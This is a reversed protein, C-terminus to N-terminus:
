QHGSRPVKVVEPRTQSSMLRFSGLMRCDTHLRGRPVTPSYVPNRSSCLVNCASPPGDKKVWRQQRPLQVRQLYRSPIGLSDRITATDRAIFPAVTDFSCLCPRSPISPVKKEQTSVEVKTLGIIICVLDVDSWDSATSPSPRMRFSSSISFGGKASRHRTAVGCREMGVLGPGLWGYM